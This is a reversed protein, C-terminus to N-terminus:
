EPSGARPRLLRPLWCRRRKQGNSYWLQQLLVTTDKTGGNDLFGGGFGVGSDGRVLRWGPRQEENRTRLSVTTEGAYDASVPLTCVQMEEMM